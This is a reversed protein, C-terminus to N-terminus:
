NYSELDILIAGPNYMYLWHCWSIMFALNMIQGSGAFFPCLAITIERHFIYLDDHIVRLNHLSKGISILLDPPFVFM